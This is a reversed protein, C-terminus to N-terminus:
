RRTDVVKDKHVKVYQNYTIGKSIPKSDVYGHYYNNEFKDVKLWLREKNRYIFKIVKPTKSKGPSM